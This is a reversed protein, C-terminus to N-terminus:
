LQLVPVLSASYKPISLTTGFKVQRLNRQADKVRLVSAKKSEYSLFKIPISFIVSLSTVHM